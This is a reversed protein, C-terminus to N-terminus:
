FIYVYFIHGWSDSFTIDEYLRKGDLMYDRVQQYHPLIQIHTLGLGPFFRIYEPDISEGPEEPQAYVEQAANMSGASIGMIVGPFSALIHKLEIRSFFEHQTPVHGGSLILFDSSAILEQAAGANRGDLVSFSGFPIGADSFAKAMDAGFYDTMAHNDPDSCIFLVRPMAPLAKKLRLVFENASNLTAPSVQYLCPSSTLFLTM